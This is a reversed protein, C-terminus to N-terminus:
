ITTGILHFLNYHNIYIQLDNIKMENDEKGTIIYTPELTYNFGNYGGSKLFLEM